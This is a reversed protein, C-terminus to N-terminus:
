GGQTRKSLRHMLERNKTYADLYVQYTADYVLGRHKPTFIHLEQPFQNELAEVDDSAGSDMDPVLQLLARAGSFRAEELRHFTEGTVEALLEPLGFIASGGGSLLVPEQDHTGAGHVLADLISRVAFAVGEEVARFLEVRGTGRTLGIFTGSAAPDKFPSREGALYPLFVVNSDHPSLSAADKALQEFLQARTIKDPSFLELLWDFAGTATLLPAVRILQDRVPHRLNFVGHEPNGPQHLPGTDLVWGSTGLYCSRHYGPAEMALVSAGVDGVGHIVRVGGPLALEAAVDPLLSGMDKDGPVIPALTDLEVPLLELLESVWTGTVPDMLGTTAATTPDTGANGTLRWAVYDHAGCLIKQVAPIINPEQEVLYLLKASFQATDPTNKILDTLRDPGIHTLFDQYGTSPRQAFYLVADRLPGHEGLLILNQMQGTLVIYQLSNLQPQGPTRESGATMSLSRIARSFAAFWVEPDIEDHRTEGDGPPYTEVVQEVLTGNRTYGEVKVSSTGIDAVLVHVM